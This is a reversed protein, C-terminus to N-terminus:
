ADRLLARGRQYYRLGLELRCLRGHYACVIATRALHGRPRPPRQLARVDIGFRWAIDALTDGARVIYNPTPTASQAHGVSPAWLLALMVILPLFVLRKRGM